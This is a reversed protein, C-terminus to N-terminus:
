FFCDVAGHAAWLTDPVHGASMRRPAFMVAAPHPRCFPMCMALVSITVNALMEPQALCLDAGNQRATSMCPYVRWVRVFSSVACVKGGVCAARMCCANM